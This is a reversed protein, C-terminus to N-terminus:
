SQHRTGPRWRRIWAVPRTLISHIALMSELPHCYRLPCGLHVAQQCLVLPFEHTDANTPRVASFIWSPWRGFM